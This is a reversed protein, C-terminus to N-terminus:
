DTEALMEPRIIEGSAELERVHKLQEAMDSAIKARMAVFEPEHRLPEFIPDHDFAYRWLIRWGADVGRQLEALADDNKGLLAYTRANGWASGWLGLIPKSRIVPIVAELLQRGREAEGTRFHLYAIEVAAFYNARNVGPSDANVIEPYLTAYRQLADDQRGNAIDIDRLLELSMGAWTNMQSSYDHVDNALVIADDLEGRLISLLLRVPKQAGNDPQVVISRDLWKEATDLDDLSLYWVAMSAMAGADSPDAELGKSDWLVADDIQAKVSGHYVAYGSYGFRSDPHMEVAREFTRRADDFQGVQVLSFGVNSRLVASLPDLELGKEFMALAEEHRGQNDLNLGYWNYAALHNPSLEIARVYDAEAAAYDRANSKIAGLSAYAEGIKDNIHLATEVARKALPMADAPDAGSYYVSHRYADSLGVYALAYGPDLDIAHQYHRISETVSEATRTTWLKKALLYSEYAELDRTHVVDLKEQDEPSLTAQLAAAIAKSIESQIKFLNEATLKRDYTEAWLHQDTAADILQVNIRVMDGSRQIGGELINAVGLEQAIERLNKTTDKYAMVSTRSIVKMSGIKAITTLLDDHIGETFFEDEERNSRNDFPLVAISKDNVQAPAQEAVEEVAQDVTPARDAIRSEWVFYGLAIGLLVIISYDLKRGTHSTISATRDVDKEKKLGEPTIEFAWAFFVALPFGLLLLFLVTKSVWEPTGFNDFALDAVQALLWAIVMYAIAVRFVNRRKLENFLSM